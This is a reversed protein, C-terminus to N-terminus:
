GSPVSHPSAVKACKFLLVTDRNITSAARKLLMGIARVSFCDGYKLAYIQQRENPSLQQYSM